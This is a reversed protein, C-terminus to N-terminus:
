PTSRRSYGTILGQHFPEFRERTEFGEAKNDEMVRSALCERFMWSSVPVDGGLM